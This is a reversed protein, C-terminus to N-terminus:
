DSLRMTVGDTPAALRDGRNQAWTIFSAALIAASGPIHGSHRSRILCAAPPRALESTPNVGVALRDEMQQGLDLQPWGEQGV